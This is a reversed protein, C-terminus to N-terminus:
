ARKRAASRRAAVRRLTRRKRGQSVKGAPAGGPEFTEGEERVDLRAPERTAPWRVDGGAADVVATTLLYGVAALAERLREPRTVHRPDLLRRAEKEDVGLREALEVKSLGQARMAAYLLAKSATPEPAPVLAEGARPPSPPPIDEADAIRGALAEGLADAAQALADARDEGQTLCEPLDRFSVVFGGEPEAELLAAYTLALIDM